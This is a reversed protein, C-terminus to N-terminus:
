KRKMTVTVVAEPPAVFRVQADKVFVSVPFQVVGRAQSVDVADTVAASIRAVSDRPGTISMEQPEVKYSAIRYGNQGEGTFRVHVPVGTTRRPEFKFQVQAPRSRVLRVNRPLKVNSDDVVYTHEGPEASALDLVVTPHVTEGMGRLEGAPGRVELVVSTVPDSSIEIWEPMNKYELGARANTTLEPETAVLAWIIVAIALSALKWLLNEFLFGRLWKLLWM